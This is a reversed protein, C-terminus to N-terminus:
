PALVRPRGDACVNAGLYGAHPDRHRRVRADIADPAVCVGDGRGSVCVRMLRMANTSAMSALDSAVVPYLPRRRSREPGTAVRGPRWGRADFTGVRRCRDARCRSTTSERRGPGGPLGVDPASARPAAGQCEM